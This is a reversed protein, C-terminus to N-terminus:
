HDKPTLFAICPGTEIDPLPLMKGTLDVIGSYVARHSQFRPCWQSVRIWPMKAKGASKQKESIKLTAASPGVQGYHM